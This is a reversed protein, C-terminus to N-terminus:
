WYIGSSGVATAVIGLILNTVIIPRMKTNLIKGANQYDKNEVAMKFKLYLGFYLYAFLIIMVWGIGHMLQLYLPQFNLGGLRTVWDWYGSLVILAIFLWVWPFFRSFIGLFLDLRAPPELQEVAAPRFVQYVLFIGGVWLVAAISHISIALISTINISEIDM